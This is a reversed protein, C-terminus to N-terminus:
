ASRGRDRLGATRPQGPRESRPTAASGDAAPALLDVAAPALADLAVAREGGAGSAGRVVWRRVKDVIAELRRRWAQASLGAEKALAGVLPSHLVGALLEADDLSFGLAAVAHRRRRAGLDLKPHVQKLHSRVTELSVGLAAAIEENSFGDRALAAVQRQRRTLARKM